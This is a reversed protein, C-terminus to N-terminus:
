KGMLSLQSEHLLYLYARRDVGGASPSVEPDKPNLSVLKKISQKRL